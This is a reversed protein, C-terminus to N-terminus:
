LPSSHGPLIFTPYAPRQVIPGRANRGASRQALRGHFLFCVTHNPPFDGFPRIEGPDRLRVRQLDLPPYIFVRAADKPSPTGPPHQQLKGLLCPNLPHFQKQLYHVFIFISIKQM